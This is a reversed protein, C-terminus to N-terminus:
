IEMAADFGSHNAKKITGIDSCDGVVYTEPVLERFEDPAVPIIGM